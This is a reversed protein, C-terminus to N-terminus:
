GRRSEARLEALDAEAVDFDTEYVPAPRYVIMYGIGAVEIAILCVLIGWTM